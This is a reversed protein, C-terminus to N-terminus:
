LNLRTSEGLRARAELCMSEVRNTHVHSPYTRLTSKKEAVIDAVRDAYVM